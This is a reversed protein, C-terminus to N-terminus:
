SPCGRPGGNKKKKKRKIQAEEKKKENPKMKLKFKLTLFFTPPVSCRGELVDSMRNQRIEVHSGM